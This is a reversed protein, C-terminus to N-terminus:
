VVDFHDGGHPWVNRRPPIEKPDLEGDSIKQFVDSPQKDKKAVRLLEPALENKEVDMKEDEQQRTTNLVSLVRSLEFCFGVANPATPKNRSVRRILGVRKIIRSDGSAYLIGM